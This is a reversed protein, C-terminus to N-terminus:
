CLQIYMKVQGLSWVARLLSYKIFIGRKSKAGSLVSSNLWRVSLDYYSEGTYYVYNGCGIGYLAGTKTAFPLFVIAGAHSHDFIWAEDCKKENPKILIGNDIYYFM